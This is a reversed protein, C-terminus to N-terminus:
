YVPGDLQVVRLRADPHDRQVALADQVVVDLVNTSGFSLLVGNRQDYIRWHIEEHVAAREELPKGNWTDRDDPAPTPALHGRLWAPRSM